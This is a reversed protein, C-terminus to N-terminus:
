RATLRRPDCSPTGFPSLIRSCPSSGGLTIKFAMGARLLVAEATTTGYLDGNPGEVLSGYPRIGELYVFTHLTTFIGDATIRFISDRTTGYFHGDRAQTLTAFPGEDNVYPTDVFRHLTAFTGDSAIRYVTRPPQTWGGDFGNTTGYLSGDRAELLGAWPCDGEGTSPRFTHFLSFAGSPDVKFVVGADEAGGSCTTGYITGDRAQILDGIPYRGDNGGFTHIITRVAGGGPLLDLRFVTGAAFPGGVYTTGYLAGDAALLVRGWPYGPEPVISRVVEFSVQGSAVGPFLV